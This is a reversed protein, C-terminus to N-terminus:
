CREGEEEGDSATLSCIILISVLCEMIESFRNLICINPLMKSM